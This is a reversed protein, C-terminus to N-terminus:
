FGDSMGMEFVIEVLLNEGVELVLESEKVNHMEGPNTKLAGEIHSLAFFKM